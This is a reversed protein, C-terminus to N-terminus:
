SESKEYIARYATDSVLDYTQHTHSTMLYRIGDKQYVGEYSVGAATPLGSTKDIELYCQMTATKYKQSPSEEQYLRQCIDTRILAAFDEGATFTIRLNNKANKVKAGSIYDPLMVAGILQRRCLDKMEEETLTQKGQEGNISISYEGNVFRETQTAESVAQDLSTNNFVFKTDLRAAWTDQKHTNLIVKETLSDGYAQYSIDHTYNATVSDAAMLYGCAVELMRPGDLYDIKTYTKKDSLSPITSKENRHIEVTTHIHFDVGDHSYATNYDSRILQGDADLFATAGSTHFQTVETALWKEPSVADSFLIKTGNKDATASITGYDLLTIPVAPVYRSLYEEQTIKGRFPIGAVTFYGVNDEYQEQISIIHSGISLTQDVYGQMQETGIGTYIIKQRSEESIADGSVTTTKTQTVTLSIDTMKDVSAVASEYLSIAKGQSITQPATEPSVSDPAAFLIIIIALLLAVGCIALRRFDAKDM